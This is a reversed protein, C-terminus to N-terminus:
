FTGFKHYAEVADMGGMIAERMSEAMWCGAIDMPAAVSQWDSVFRGTPVNRLAISLWSKLRPCGRM